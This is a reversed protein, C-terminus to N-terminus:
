EQPNSKIEYTLRNRSQKLWLAYGDRGVLCISQPSTDAISGDPMFRITPLGPQVLMTRAISAVSKVQGANGSNTSTSVAGTEIRIQLGTELQLDVKRPDNNDYSPEAELGFKGEEPSVWLDMPLGESVARSQGNRTLALFRRAESELERGRFFRSLTPATLSFAMTLIAMVLILEILTFAAASRRLGFDSIRLGFDEGPTALVLAPLSCGRFERFVRFLIAQRRPNGRIGRRGRNLIAAMKSEIIRPRLSPRFGFASIAFSEPMREASLVSAAPAETDRLSRVSHPVPHPSRIESKPNGESKPAESKPNGEPNLGEAKPNRIEAM